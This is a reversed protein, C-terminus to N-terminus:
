WLTPLPFITVYVLLEPRLHLHCVAESLKDPVELAADHGMDCFQISCKFQTTQLLEQMFHVFVLSVSYQLGTTQPNFPIIPQSPSM